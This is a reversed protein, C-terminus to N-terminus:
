RSQNNEIENSIAKELNIDTVGFIGSDEKGTIHSLDEKTGYIGYPVNRKNAEAIMKKKSNEALDEALIIYKVKNKAMMFTCTNYGIAVLRGRAALGLYNLVKDRM